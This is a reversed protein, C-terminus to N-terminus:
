AEFGLAFNVKLTVVLHYRAGYTIKNSGPYLLGISIQDTPYM